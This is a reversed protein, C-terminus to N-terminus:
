RRNENSSSTPQRPTRRAKLTMYSRGTFGYPQMKPSGVEICTAIACLPLFLM